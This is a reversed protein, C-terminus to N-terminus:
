PGRHQVRGSGGRVVAAEKRESEIRQAVYAEEAMAEQFMGLHRLVRATALRAILEHLHVMFGPKDSDNVLRPPESVSFVTATEGSADPTPYMYMRDGHHCYFKPENEVTSESRKQVLEGLSLPELTSIQGEANTYQVWLYERVLSPILYEDDGDVTVVDYTCRTWRLDRDIEQYADNVFFPILKEVFRRDDGAIRATELRVRQQLEAYTYGGSAM